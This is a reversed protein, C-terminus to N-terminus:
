KVLFWYGAGAGAALLVWVLPSTKKAAPAPPTLIAQATASEPTQLEEVMRTASETVEKPLIIPPAGPRPIMGPIPQMPVFEPASPLEEVRHERVIPVSQTSAASPIQSSFVTRRIPVTMSTTSSASLRPTAPRPAAPRPRPKIAAISPTPITYPQVPVVSPRTPVTFISPRSIIQREGSVTPIRLAGLGSYEYM